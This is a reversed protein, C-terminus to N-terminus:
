VGWNQAPVILQSHQLRSVPSHAAHTTRVACVVGHQKASTFAKQVWKGIERGYPPNMWCVGRWEKSLGDEEPSFYNRCKANEELACVDVSFNFVANLRDFLAQPTAWLDTATSFMVDTNM